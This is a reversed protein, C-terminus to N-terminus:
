DPLKSTVKVFAEVLTQRRNSSVADSLEWATEVAASIAMGSVRLMDRTKLQLQYDFNYMHLLAKLRQEACCLYLDRKTDEACVCLDFLRQVRSDRSNITSACMLPIPSMVPIYSAVNIIGNYQGISNLIEEFEVNQCNAKVTALYDKNKEM